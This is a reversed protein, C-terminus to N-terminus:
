GDANDGHEANLVKYEAIVQRLRPTENYSWVTLGCTDKTQRDFPIFHAYLFQELRRDSTHFINM